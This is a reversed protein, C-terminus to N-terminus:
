GSLEIHNEKILAQFQPSIRHFDVLDIRFPLDSNAFTADLQGLQSLPIPQQAVLAIDLDSYQRATGQIRSGFLWFKSHPLSASLIKQIFTLHDPNVQLPM